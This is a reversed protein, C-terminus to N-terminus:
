ISTKFIVCTFLNMRVHMFKSRMFVTAHHHTLVTSEHPSDLPQTTNDEERDKEM